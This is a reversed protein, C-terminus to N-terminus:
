GMRKPGERYLRVRCVDAIHQLRAVAQTEVSLLADGDADFGQSKILAGLSEARILTYVKDVKSRFVVHADDSSSLYFDM